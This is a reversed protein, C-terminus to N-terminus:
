VSCAPLSLKDTILKEMMLTRGEGTIFQHSTTTWMSSLNFASKYLKGASKDTQRSIFANLFSYSKKLMAHQKGALEM